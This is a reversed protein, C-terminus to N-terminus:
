DDDRHAVLVGVGDGAVVRRLRKRAFEQLAVAGEVGLAIAREEDGDLDLVAEDLGMNFAAQGYGTELVRFPFGM